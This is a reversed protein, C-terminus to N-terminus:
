VVDAFWRKSRMFWTYGAQFILVAFLFNLGLANWDPWQGYFLVQRATQIIVTLPNLLLLSRFKEPVMELNYFVPTAFCLMQLGIRLIHALDRLYVGLSAVFWGVGCCLLFLNAVLLPLCIFSLSMKHMVTVTGVLLFIFWITGLFVASLVSAVPLIELPFVVKKVYSPTNSISILSTMASESFINFLTLGCFMIMAFAFKSDGFESGWHTKFIVSFVFTYVLLMAAPTIIIWVVGLTTGKYFVLINRKIFQFLLDRCKWLSIFPLAPNLYRWPSEKQWVTRM